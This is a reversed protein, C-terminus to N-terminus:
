LPLDTEGYRPTAKPISTSYNWQTPTDSLNLGASITAHTFSPPRLLCHQLCLASALCWAHKRIGSPMQSIPCPITWFPCPLHLCVGQHRPSLLSSWPMVNKCGALQAKSKLIPTNLSVGAQLLQPSRLVGWTVHSHHM